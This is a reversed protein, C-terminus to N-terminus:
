WRLSEQSWVIEVDGNKPSTMQSAKERYALDTKAFM